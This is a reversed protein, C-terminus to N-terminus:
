CIGYIKGRTECNSNFDPMSSKTDFRLAPLEIDPPASEVRAKSEERLYKPRSNEFM